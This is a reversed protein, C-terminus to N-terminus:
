PKAEIYTEVHDIVQGVSYVRMIFAAPYSSYVASQAEWRRIGAVMNGEDYAIIAIWVQSASLNEGELVIEGSVEASLQDSLVQVQLNDIHAPVYRTDGKAIPLATQLEVNVQYDEPFAADFYTELPMSSGAPLLDLPLWATQSVVQQGDADAVRILASVDELPTDSPNSAQIFCYMGGEADPYCHPKDLRVAIPTASPLIDPEALPTAPAPIKLETDVSMMYPDVDPNAAKLEELTIGYRLAIGLMDEGKKVIHTRPTPTPTPFPTATAPYPLTPTQTPTPTLYPTLKSIKGTASPTVTIMSENEPQTQCAVLLIVFAIGFFLLISRKRLMDGIIDADAM